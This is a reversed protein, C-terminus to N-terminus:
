VAYDIDYPLVYFDSIGLVVTVVAMVATEYGLGAV